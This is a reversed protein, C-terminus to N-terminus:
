GTVDEVCTQHAPDWTYGDQCANATDHDRGCMAFAAAPLVVLLAALLTKTWHM